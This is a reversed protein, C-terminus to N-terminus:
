FILREGGHLRIKRDTVRDEPRLRDCLLPSQPDYRGAGRQAAAPSHNAYCYTCGNLCTQYSGVDGSEDCNCVGRQNPDKKIALDRGLIKSVRQGDVCKSHPLGAPGLDPKGCASVALGNERAIAALQRALAYKEEDSIDGIGLEKMAGSIKPYFELFSLKCEDTSGKLASALRGFTEVHYQASYPGGPVIPSYRWVLREPGLRGALERFVQLRRELDPLRSEMEPGYHNLTYQIYFPQELENLRALMPQPNKTWFVIFEVGPGALSVRSVQRRNFPNRVLLYGAKLRNLFWDFYFAPVDTRRSVSLIM